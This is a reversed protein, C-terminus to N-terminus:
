SCFLRRSVPAVFTWASKPTTVIQRSNRKVPGRRFIGHQAEVRKQFQFTAAAMVQKLPMKKQAAIRQCDEYEPTANLISGNMRSIKM